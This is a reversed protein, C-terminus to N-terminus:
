GTPAGITGYPTEGGLSERLWKSPKFQISRKDPARLWTGWERAMNKDNSSFLKECFSETYGLTGCVFCFSGLREYKFKIMVCDGGPKSIKKCRMLPKRVDVAVRVRTYSRGIGSNNTTYYALFKGIFNGLQMGITESMYGVPLDYIQVWFPILNLPVKTPIKGQKLKHLLLLHNDFSWPGGELIRDVDFEHFFQFLYVQGEIERILVGKVPRWIDALRNKMAGFNVSRDTLLRGSSQEGAKAKDKKERSERLEKMISLEAEQIAKQREREGKKVDGHVLFTM